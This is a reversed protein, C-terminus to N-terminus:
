RIQLRRTYPQAAVEYISSLSKFVAHSKSILRAAPRKISQNIQNRSDLQTILLNLHSKYVWQQPRYLRYKMKDYNM